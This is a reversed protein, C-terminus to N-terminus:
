ASSRTVLLHLRAYGTTERELDSSADRVLFEDPYGNGYGRGGGGLGLALYFWLGGRVALRNGVKKTRLDRLEYFGFLGIVVYGGM